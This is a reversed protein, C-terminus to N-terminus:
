FPLDDTPMNEQKVMKSENHGAIATIKSGSIANFCKDQWIRGKLYAEVQLEDGINIEFIEDIANNLFEINITQPHKGDPIELWISQKSLKDSIIVKEKIAILKGTINM